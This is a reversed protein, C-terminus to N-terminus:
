QRDSLLLEDHLEKRLPRWKPDCYLLCRLKENARYIRAQINSAPLNLKTAIERVTLGACHYLLFPKRHRHDLARIVKMLMAKTGSLMVADAPNM